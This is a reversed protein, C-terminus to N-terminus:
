DDYDIKVLTLGAEADYDGIRQCNGRCLVNQCFGNDRISQAMCYGYSYHGCTVRLKKRQAPEIM